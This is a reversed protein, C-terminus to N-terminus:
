PWRLAFEDGHQGFFEGRGDTLDFAPGPSLGVTVGWHHSPRGGETVENYIERGLFGPYMLKCLREAAVLSRV